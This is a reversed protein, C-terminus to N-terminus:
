GGVAASQPHSSVIARRRPMDGRLKQRLTHTIPRETFRYVILALLSSRRALFHRFASRSASTSDRFWINQLRRGVIVQAPKLATGMKM